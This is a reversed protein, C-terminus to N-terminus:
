PQQENLLERVKAYIANEQGAGEWAGRITGSRDLVFSTPLGTHGALQAFALRTTGDPDSYTPLDLNLKELTAETESLLRDPNDTGCSVPLLVFDDNALESEMEAFRPLEPLCYPCWTAWFNVLVVKGKLQDLTVPQSAGTLPALQLAPLKQDIAKELSGGGSHLLLIGLAILFLIIVIWGISSSRNDLALHAHIKM